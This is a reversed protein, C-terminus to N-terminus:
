LSLDECSMLSVKLALARGTDKSAEALVLNVLFACQHSLLELNRQTM